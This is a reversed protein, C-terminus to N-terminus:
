SAPPKQAHVASIFSQQVTLVTMSIPENNQSALCAYAQKGEHEIAKVSFDLQQLVGHKKWIDFCSRLHRLLDSKSFFELDATDSRYHVDERLFPLLADFSQTAMCEAFLRAADEDTLSKPPSMSISDATKIAPITGHLETRLAYSSAGTPTLFLTAFCIDAPGDGQPTQQMHAPYKNPHFRCRYGLKDVHEGVMYDVMVMMRGGQPTRLIIDPRGFRFLPLFSSELSFGARIFAALLEALAAGYPLLAVKQNEAAIDRKDEEAALATQPSDAWSDPNEVLADPAAQLKGSAEFYDGVRPVRGSLAHEPVYVNFVLQPQKAHAAAQICYVRLGQIEASEVSKVSSRFADVRGFPSEISVACPSIFRFSEAFLSVSWRMHMGTHWKGPFMSLEACDAVYVCGRSDILEIEKDRLAYIELENVPNQASYVGSRSVRIAGSQTAVMQLLVLPFEGKGSCHCETNRPMDQHGALGAVYPYIRMGGNAVERVCNHMKLLAAGGVFSHERHPRPLFQLTDAEHLWRGQKRLVYANEAVCRARDHQLQQVVCPLVVIEVAAHAEAWAYQKPTLAGESSWSAICLVYVALMRGGAKVMFHPSGDALRLSDIVLNKVEGRYLSAVVSEVGTEAISFLDSEQWGRMEAVDAVSTARALVKTSFHVHSM